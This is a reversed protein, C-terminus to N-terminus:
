GSASSDPNDRFFGELEVNGKNIDIKRIIVKEIKHGTKLSLERLLERRMEPALLEPKGFVIIVPTLTDKKLFLELLFASIIVISNIVIAGVVPPPINAQSNIISVGIVVFIYTMDKATFNVTRFRLIAFIAFLGLAMGLQINVTQLLSCLLFIVIGMLSFSFVYEKKGTFRYYIVGVLIFIVFLNVAFRIMISFLTHELAITSLSM